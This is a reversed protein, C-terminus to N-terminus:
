GIVLPADSAGMVQKGDPGPDPVDHGYGVRWLVLGHPPATGPGLRRDRERLLQTIWEPPRTGSGIEVLAGVISRVMRPLFGDAIVRVELASGVDAAAIGWWPAVREVTCHMITRVTGRPSTARESWPVGEGGGAFSAVDQTGLMRQAGAAMASLDLDSRRQWVLNGVLPQRTGVWIRYRYERWTADFRAHFAQVREARVVSMDDGVHANIATRLDVEPIGSRLDPCGVVQGIAHVGRDTRGAFVTPLHQGALIKLSHELEEQVTRRAPQRQSGFFGSGDYSVTLKWSTGV